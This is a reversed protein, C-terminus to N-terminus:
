STVTHKLKIDYLGLWHFKDQSFSSSLQRIWGQWHNLWLTIQPSVTLTTLWPLHDCAARQIKEMPAGAQHYLGTSKQPRRSVWTGNWVRHELEIVQQKCITWTTNSGLQNASLSFRTKKREKMDTQGVGAKMKWFDTEKVEELFWKCSM